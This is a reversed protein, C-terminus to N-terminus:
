DNQLKDFFEREITHISIIRDRPIFIYGDGHPSAIYLVIGESSIRLIHWEKMSKLYGKQELKLLIRPTEEIEVHFLLTDVVNSAFPMGM